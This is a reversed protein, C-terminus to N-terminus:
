QQNKVYGYELYGISGPTSKILTAVGENGKAKIGVPWKPQTSVGPGKAFEESIASLHKTFVYTTGSGSTRTVITISQDPLKVGPNADAIAKDSWKTIKGLFIGAYADRTLKLDDVGPLNYALVISGATIPLCQVGREVKAIEEPTMAADSAGFDVNEDTLLKVGPGSGVAQYNITVEPHAKNYSAFWKRYLPKPFTAGAGDLTAEGKADGPVAINALAAQVKERAKAPLPIYGLAESEKQGDALCYTLVDKLANGKRADAYKKYALIWSYTVIPYSEDGEPDSAWVILDDPLNVTALANQASAISPRIFKGAKNQLSAM